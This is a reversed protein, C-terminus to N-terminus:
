GISEWIECECMPSEMCTREGSGNCTAIGSSAGHHKESPMVGISVGDVLIETYSSQLVCCDPTEVAVLKEGPWDGRSISRKTGPDFRSPGGGGSYTSKWHSGSNCYRGPRSSALCVGVPWPKESSSFSMSSIGRGSGASVQSARRGDGDRDSEVPDESPEQQLAIYLCGLVSGPLGSISIIRNSWCVHPMRETLSPGFSFGHLVM